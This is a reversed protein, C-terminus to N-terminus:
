TLSHSCSEVLQIPCCVFMLCDHATLVDMFFTQIVVPSGFLGRIGVLWWRLREIFAGMEVNDMEVPITWYGKDQLSECIHQSDSKQTEPDIRLIGPVNELTVVDPENLVVITEVEGWGVGSESDGRQISGTNTGSNKNLTTLSRCTFGAGLESTVPFIQPGASPDRQNVVMHQKLEAMQTVMWPVDPHQLSLFERKEKDKECMSVTKWKFHVNYKAAYFLSLRDLGKEGIGCGSCVSMVPIVGGAGWKETSMKGFARVGLMYDVEVSAPMNAHWLELMADMMCDVYVVDNESVGSKLPSDELKQVKSSRPTSADSLRRKPKRDQETEGDRERDRSETQGDSKM